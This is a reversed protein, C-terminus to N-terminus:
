GRHAPAARRAGSQSVDGNGQRFGVGATLYWATLMLSAIGGSILVFSGSWVSRNLPIMSSWLIGGIIAGVGAGALQGATRALRQGASVCMGAVVGFFATSFSSVTSFVGDPDWEPSWVHGRLLARDAWDALTRGPSLDGATGGPVPVHAMVLWYTLTLFAAVSVLIAGRRRRDGSTARYIFAAVAYCIAARQLVGPIRWTALDFQPYGSVCLGLALASLSRLLIVSSTTPESLWPISACLLFVFLPSLLDAGGVGDWEAHRLFGLGHVWRRPEDALVALTGLAILLAVFSITPARRPSAAPASRGTRRSM